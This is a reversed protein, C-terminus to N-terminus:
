PAPPRHRVLDREVDAKIPVYYQDVSRIYTEIPLQTARSAIYNNPEVWAWIAAAVLTAVIFGVLLQGISETLSPRWIMVILVFPLSFAVSWMPGELQLWQIMSRNLWVPGPMWQDISAAGLLPMGPSGLMSLLPDPRAHMEIPLGIVSWGLRWQFAVQLVVAVLASLVFLSRIGFRLRLRTRIGIAVMLATIWSFTVATVVWHQVRNSVIDAPGLGFFFMSLCLGILLTALPWAALRLTAASRSLILWCCLAVLSLGLCAALLSRSGFNRCSFRVPNKWFRRPPQMFNRM